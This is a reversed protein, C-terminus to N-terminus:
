VTQLQKGDLVKIEGISIVKATVIVRQFQPQAKLLNLEPMDLNFKKESHTKPKLKTTYDRIIIELSDEGSYAKQVGFDALKVPYKEKFIKEM